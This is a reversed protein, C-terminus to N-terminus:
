NRCSSFTYSASFSVAHGMLESLGGIVADSSARQEDTLAENIAAILNGQYVLGLQRFGKNEPNSLELCRTGVRLISNLLIPDKMAVPVYASTMPVEPAFRSITDLDFAFQHVLCYCTLAVM